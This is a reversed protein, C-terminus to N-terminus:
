TKGTKYNQVTTMDHFHMWPMVGVCQLEVPAKRGLPIHGLDDMAVTQVSQICGAAMLVSMLQELTNLKGDGQLTSCNEALGTGTNRLV